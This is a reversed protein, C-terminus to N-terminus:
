ERVVYTARLVALESTTRVTVREGPAATWTTGTAHEGKLEPAAVDFQGSRIEFLAESPPTLVVENGESIYYERIEVRAGLGPIEQTFLLATRGKGGPLPEHPPIERVIKPIDTREPPTPELERTASKCGALTAIMAASVAIRTLRM